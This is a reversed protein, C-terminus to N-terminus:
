GVFLGGIFEPEFALDDSIIQTPNVAFSRVRPPYGPGRSSLIRAPGGDTEPAVGVRIGGLELNLAALVPDVPQSADREGTDFASIRVISGGDLSSRFRIEPITNGGPGVIVDAFGDGDVDGASVYIGDRYDEDFALFETLVSLNSANFVRVHPGGGVGAGTIIDGFGDGNVDGGAVRVGGRFNEAYAFFRTLTRGQGDFVGVVPGGGAGAGTIIEGVGDGTLDTVAVFAGGRFTDEYAFFDAIQAFSSGDFVRIRPGGGYGAATVLDPVGDGNVDGTAVRVGGIYGEEYVFQDFLVANTAADYVRVRPGGGADAGVAYVPRGGGANEFGSFTFAAGSATTLRTRTTGDGGVIRQTTTSEAASVTLRDGNQRRTPGDADVVIDTDTSPTVTVTDGRGSESGTKVILTSVTPRGDTRGLAITRLDGLTANRVSVFQDSVGIEDSGSDATPEGLATGRGVESVGRATLTDRFQGTGTPDGNYVLGGADSGNVNALNVNPGVRGRNISLTGAAASTSRFVVGALPDDVSGYSANTADVVTFNNRGGRGDYDLDALTDFNIAKGLGTVQGADPTNLTATVPFADDADENFGVLRARDGGGNGVLFLADSTVGFLGPDVAFTDAGLGGRLVVSGNLNDGVVNFVDAGGNGDAAFQGGAPTGAITFTDNGANSGRLLVGSGDAAAFAGGTAAFVIPLPTGGAITNANVTYNGGFPAAFDSLILRNNQGTGADFTVQARVGSLDGDDSDGALSSARLTDNGPGGLVTVPLTTARVSLGDPGDNGLLTVPAAPNEIRFTEALGANNSGSVDLRAVNFYEIVAADTPGALGLIRNGTISAFANGTAAAFDSVALVDTGPNRGNIQVTGNVGALDGLSDANARSNVVFTDAGGTGALRTVGASTSNVFVANGDVAQAGLDLVLEGNALGTYRVGTGPFSSFLNDTGGGGVSNATVTVVTPTTRASNSIILRDGPDNGADVVVPSKLFALDGGPQGSASIVITDAGAGGQFSFTPNSSREVRLSNGLGDTVVVSNPNSPDAAIQMPNDGADGTVTVRAAVRITSSVDPIVWAGRGQTGTYLRNGTVRLNDVYVNPLGSGYETWGFNPFLAPDNLGPVLRFVGGRGGALLTTGGGLVSNPASDHLALGTIATTLGGTLGGTVPDRQLQIPNGSADIGPALLNQTVDVWTSGSDTSSFVQGSGRLVFVQRYDDPDVVLSSIPGAGPVTLPIFGGVAGRFYLQGATTGVYSVRSIGVGALRGGYTLANVTGALGAPTVKAVVDGARGAPNDDEYLKFNGLMLLRGDVVNVALKASFVSFANKDADDLGAGFGPDTPSAFIVPTVSQVVNQSNVATRRFTALTNGSTYRVTIGPTSTTDVDSTGGDGRGVNTWTTNGAERTNGSVQAISGTDQTGGFLVNNLPDYNLSYFQGLDLNGSASVWPADNSRPDLRRFLGGDAGFVITGAADFAMVRSDPYPATGQANEDVLPEWQPSPVIQDGVAPFSRNGRFVNGTASPTTDGGLYVISPDTPDATFSMHIDGQSGNNPGYLPEVVGGGTYVGTGVSGDLTFTDQGTRTVTFLANAGTNGTVGSVRVRNGTNLNHFPSTISIPAANTADTVFRPGGLRTPLDMAQWTTGRNLSYTVSDVQGTNTALYLVDNGPTQHIAIKGNVKILPVVFDQLPSSIDTWTPVASRIDDTRFIGLDSFAYVRNSNSPDAKMDYFTQPVAGNPGNILTAPLGGTGVLQTFTAGNDVSRYLSAEDGAALIYGARVTVAYINKGALPGGLVRFTPNPALANETYIVGTLDGGVRGASSLRGVGAVLQSPNGPNLDMSGISLSPLQDTLPTFTPSQSQGNFTRWVGGNIGAVFLTNPDTPHPAVEEVAGTVPNNTDSVVNVQGNIQPYPGASQWTPLGTQVIAPVERAELQELKM